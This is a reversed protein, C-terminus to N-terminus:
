GVDGPTACDPMDNVDAFVEITRDVSDGLESEDLLLRADPDSRLREAYTSRNDVYIRWDTIWGRVSTADAGEAPADTAINAVMDAVMATADDLVDARETPTDLLEANPLERLDARLQQCRAHTREVFARDDLLDPNDRSPGGAFIWAWFGVMTLIVVVVLVRSITWRMSTRREVDTDPVNPPSM